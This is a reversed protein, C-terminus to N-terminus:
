ATSAPAAPLVFRFETTGDGATGAELRSGLAHCIERCLRLGLGGTASLPEDEGAAFRAAVDPSFM